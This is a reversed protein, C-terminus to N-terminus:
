TVAGIQAVLLHFPGPAFGAHPEGRTDFRSVMIGVSCVRARDLSRGRVPRGRFSAVFQDLALRAVAWDGRAPWFEHQFTPASPGLECKLCLKYPVTPDPAGSPLRTTVDIAAFASLDRWGSEDRVSAFGGVGSLIGRFSACGRAADWELKGSSEGGMVTDHLAAWPRLSEPSSFAVLHAPGDRAGRGDEGLIRDFGDRLAWAKDEDDRASSAARLAAELTQRDGPSPGGSGGPPMALIAMAGRRYLEACERARGENFLPAGQEILAVIASAVDPFAEGRM